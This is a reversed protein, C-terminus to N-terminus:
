IYIIHMDDVMLNKNRPFQPFLVACSAKRTSPEDDGAWPLNSRVRVRDATLHITSGHCPGMTFRFWLVNMPCGSYKMMTQWCSDIKVRIRPLQPEQIKGEGCGM